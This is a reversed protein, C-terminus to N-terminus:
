ASAYDARPTVSGGIPWPKAVARFAARRHRRRLIKAKGEKFTRFEAYGFSNPFGVYTLGSEFVYYVPPEDRTLEHLRAM